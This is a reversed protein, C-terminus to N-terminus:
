SNFLDGTGIRRRVAPKSQYQRSVSGVREDFRGELIAQINEKIQEKSLTGDHVTARYKIETNHVYQPFPPWCQQRAWILLPEVSANKLAAILFQRCWEVCNYLEGEDLTGPFHRFEVTNTQLLQRLSVCLRPQAHWLPKGTKSIPPELNFFEDVSRAELQRNLRKESLLTQHSVRRRRWRRVAGVLEEPNLFDKIGPRPLLEIISFVNPMHQHIYCQVQKLLALNKNLGPVRIHVHLNSRYNVVAKPFLEKIQCLCEVQGEVTSTPPTNIEGGFEYLVGKPDNAVGNSNVITFDREDWGFGQPLQMRRAIDALEHECGYSWSKNIQVPNRV